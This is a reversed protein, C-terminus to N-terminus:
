HYGSSSFKNEGRETDELEDVEKIKVNVVPQILMQAIRMNKEIKFDEEGLHKLVVCVEGRYNSDILGAIVHLGHKGAMGGRDWILGAHSDPIAMKIGTNVVKKEKPKIVLEEASRLDFAADGERSYKPLDVDKVRRIRLEM